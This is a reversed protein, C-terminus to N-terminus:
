GSEEACFTFGNKILDSVINQYTGNQWVLSDGSKAMQQARNFSDYDSVPYISASMSFFFFVIFFGVLLKIM